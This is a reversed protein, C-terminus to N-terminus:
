KFSFIECNIDYQFYYKIFSGDSYEKNFQINKIILGMEEIISTIIKEEMLM